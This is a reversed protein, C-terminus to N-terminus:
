GCGGDTNLAFKEASAVRTVAVAVGNDADARWLLAVAMPELDGM